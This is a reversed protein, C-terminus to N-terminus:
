SQTKNRLSNVSNLNLWDCDTFFMLSDLHYFILNINHNKLFDFSTKLSASIQPLEPKNFYNMSITEDAKFRMQRTHIDIGVNM